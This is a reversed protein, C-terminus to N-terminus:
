RRAYLKLAICVFSTSVGFLHAVTRYEATSALYYLTLALRREPPVAKRMTTNQRSIDGRIEDLLFTFTVKTVRFNQYWQKDNFTDTVMEFWTAERPNM